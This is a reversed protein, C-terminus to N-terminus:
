ILRVAPGPSRADVMCPMDHDWRGHMADEYRARMSARRPAASHRTIIEKAFVIAGRALFIPGGGAGSDPDYMARLISNQTRHIIRIRSNPPDFFERLTRSLQFQAEAATPGVGTYVSNLILSYRHDLVKCSKITSRTSVPNCKKARGPLKGPKGNKVIGGALQRLSSIM